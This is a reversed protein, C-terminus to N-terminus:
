ENKLNIKDKIYDELKSSISDLIDIRSKLAEIMEAANESPNGDADLFSASRIATEAVQARIRDKMVEIRSRAHDYNLSNDVDREYPVMDAGPILNKLVHGPRIFPAQNATKKDKFSAIYEHFSSVSEALNGIVRFRATITDADKVAVNYLRDAGVNFFSAIGALNPSKAFGTVQPFLFRFAALSSRLTDPNKLVAPRVMWGYKSFGTQSIWEWPIDITDEALRSVREIHIGKNDISFATNKIKERESGRSLLETSVYDPIFFINTEKEEKMDIYRRTFNGYATHLKRAMDIEARDQARDFTAEYIRRGIESPPERGVYHQIQYALQKEDETTDGDKDYEGRYIDSTIKRATDDISKDVDRKELIEGDLAVRRYDDDVDQLIGMIKETIPFSAKAGKYRGTSRTLKDPLKEQIFDLIDQQKKEADVLTNLAYAGGVKVLAELFGPENMRSSRQHVALSQNINPNQENVGIYDDAPQQMERYRPDLPKTFIEKLM